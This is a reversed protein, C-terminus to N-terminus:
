DELFFCGEFLFPLCVFLGFSAVFCLFGKVQCVTFLYIQENVHSLVITNRVILEVVHYLLLAVVVVVHVDHGVLCDGFAFEGLVEGEGAV